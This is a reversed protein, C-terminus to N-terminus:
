VVADPKWIPDFYVAVIQLSVDTFFYVHDGTIACMQQWKNVFTSGNKFFSMSVAIIIFSPQLLSFDIMIDASFPFLCLTDEFLSTNECSFM